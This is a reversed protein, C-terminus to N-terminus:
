RQHDESAARRQLARRQLARRAPSGSRAELDGQSTQGPLDRSRRLGAVRIARRATTRDAPVQAM